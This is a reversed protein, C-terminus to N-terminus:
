IDTEAQSPTPFSFVARVGTPTRITSSCCSVNLLGWLVFFLGRQHTRSIGVPGRPLTFELYWLPQSDTLGMIAYLSNCFDGQTEFVFDPM